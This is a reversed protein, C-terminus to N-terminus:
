AGWGRWCGWVCCIAAPGIGFGAASWCCRPGRRCSRSSAWARWISFTIPWTRHLHVLYVNCFGLVPFLTGVFFLWGALPGRWRRRLRWLLVLVLLAAAPFLYQWWVAQSVHWRPYVFLLDAPWVLKGLYFWIARGALLGRELLTLEFPTGEAGVLRIEVWAVLIGVAAGVLFFPALPLVDKKWSLRGRQWWFIVLLAAPLTVTVTKSLVSLLFLGLAWGYSSTKRTRDFRLYSLAAALYLVASLTNKQETIWAVSEM